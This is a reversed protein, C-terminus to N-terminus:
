KLRLHENKGFNVRSTKAEPQSQSVIDTRDMGVNVVAALSYRYQLRRGQSKKFSQSLRIKRRAAGEGSM